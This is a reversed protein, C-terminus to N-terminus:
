HLGILLEDYCLGIFVEDRHGRLSIGWLKISANDGKLLNIFRQRVVLAERTTKIQHTKTYQSLIEVFDIIGLVNELNHVHNLLIGKGSVYYKLSFFPNRSCWTWIGQYKIAPLHSGFKFKFVKVNTIYGCSSSM